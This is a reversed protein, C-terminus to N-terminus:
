FGTMVAAAGLCFILIGSIMNVWQLQRLSFNKRFFHIGESLILWWLASGLFVGLVMVSASLYDRADSGIGLGAFIAVFSLITTPNTLTLLFTSIYHKVLTSSRTDTANTAVTSRFIKIGLYLLFLGGILNLLSSHSVLFGSIFTLGFAAIFGYTADATAAGLGSVFGAGRGQAVTRRICLLGIPGVPAAISFGILMGKVFFPMM